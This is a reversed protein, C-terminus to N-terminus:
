SLLEKVWAITAINSRGLSDLERLSKGSMDAIEKLLVKKNPRKVKEVTKENKMSIIIIRSSPKTM